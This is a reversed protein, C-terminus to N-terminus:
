SSTLVGGSSSQEKRTTRVHEGERIQQTLRSLDDGVAPEPLPPRLVPPISESQPETEEARVSENRPALAVVHLDDDPGTDQEPEPEAGSNSEFIKDSM